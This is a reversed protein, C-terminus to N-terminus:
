SPYTEVHLAHTTDLMGADLRVGCAQQAASLVRWLSLLDNSQLAHTQELKTAVARQVHQQALTGGIRLTNGSTHRLHLSVWANENSLLATSLHGVVDKGLALTQQETSEVPTLTLTQALYELQAIPKDDLTDISAYVPWVMHSNLAHDADAHSLSDFPTTPRHDEVDVFRAGLLMPVIANKPNDRPYIVSITDGEKLVEEPIHEGVRTTISVHAGTHDNFGIELQTDKYETKNGRRTASDRICM